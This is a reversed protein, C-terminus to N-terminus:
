CYDGTLVRELQPYLEDTKIATLFGLGGLNVAVVPLDRGMAARATSLLTGDGGLVVILDSVAAVDKRSRGDARGAYAAAEEDILVTLGRDNLWRILEPILRSAQDSRPKATLGVTRIAPSSPECPSPMFCSSAIEKRAWFPARSSRPLIDWA